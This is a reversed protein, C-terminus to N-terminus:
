GGQIYGKNASGCSVGPAPRVIYAWVFCGRDPLMYTIVESESHGMEVAEAIAEAETLFTGTRSCSSGLNDYEYWENHFPDPVMSPGLKLMPGFKTPHAFEVTKCALSVQKAYQMPPAINVKLSVNKQYVRQVIRLVQASVFTWSIHQVSQNSALLPGMVWRMPPCFVTKQREADKWQIRGLNTQVSRREGITWPLKGSNFVISLREAVRWRLKDIDYRKFREGVRWPIKGVNPHWSYREGVRWPIKGVNPHWSYREGVRWPIKGVNPHWSYREGVRWPIKGVNPQWSYREGVRWPINGPNLKLSFTLGKQAQALMAFGYEKSNLKKEFEAPVNSYSYNTEVEMVMPIASQLAFHLREAYTAPLATQGRTAKQKVYDNSHEGHSRFARRKSYTLDQAAELRYNTDFQYSIEMSDFKYLPKITQTVQAVLEIKGLTYAVPTNKDVNFARLAPRKIPLYERYVHTNDFLLIHDHEMVTATPSSVLESASRLSAFYQIHVNKAEEKVIKPQAQIQGSANFGPSGLYTVDINKFAYAPVISYDIEKGIPTYEPLMRFELGFANYEYGPVVLYNQEVPTSTIQAVEPTSARFDLGETSRFVSPETSPVDVSKVAIREDSARLEPKASKAQPYIDLSRSIAIVEAKAIRTPGSTEKPVFVTRAIAASPSLEKTIAVGTQEARTGAPIVNPKAVTVSKTFREATVVHRSESDKQYSLSLAERAEASKHYSVACVKSTDQDKAYKIGSYISRRYYEFLRVGDLSRTKVIWHAAYEGIQIILDHTKSYPSGPKFTVQIVDGNKVEGFNDQLAIGNVYLTGKAASIPVSFGPTLGAVTVPNSTVTVDVYADPVEVFKLPQIMLNPETRLHLLSCRGSCAVPVDVVRYYENPMHAVVKLTDGNRVAATTGVDVDNVVLSASYYSDPVRVFAARNRDLGSITIAETSVNSDKATNLLENFTLFDPIVDPPETRIPTNQYYSAIWINNYEDVAMGYAFNPTDVVNVINDDKLKYATADEFHSVWLATGNEAFELSYPVSGVAITAVVEHTVIDIKSLTNDYSNSVYIHTKNGTVGWPNNGVKVYHLTENVVDLIAVEDIGSLTVWVFKRDDVFVEFPKSESKLAFRRYETLQYDADSKVVVLEDTGYCAVFYLNEALPDPAKGPVPIPDEIYRNFAQIGLPRTGSGLNLSEAISYDSLDLVHISDSGSDTIIPRNLVTEALRDDYHISYPQNYGTLTQVIRRKEKDIRYVTNEYYNCVFVYNKPLFATPDSENVLMETLQGDTSRIISLKNSIPEASFVSDYPLNGYEASKVFEITPDLSTTIAFATQFTGVTVKCFKTAAYAAPAAMKIRVVDGHRVLTNQGADIYTDCTAPEDNSLNNGASATCKQITGETVSMPFTLDHHRCLIVRWESEFETNVEANCQPTFGFPEPELEAIDTAISFTSEVNGVTLTVSRTQTYANPAQMEIYLEDDAVVMTQTWVSVGNKFLQATPVEEISALTPVNIGRIKVVNSQCVKSFEVDVYDVLEFPEPNTDALIFRTPTNAYYDAVLLMNEYVFVGYPYAATDISTLVAGTSRNIRVVKREDFCAVWVGTTSDAAIGFVSVGLDVYLLVNGNAPNLKLVQGNNASAVWIANDISDYAIGQNNSGIAKTFAVTATATNIKTIHSSAHAVWLNGSGDLALEYPQAPVDIYTRSIEQMASSLRIKVIQNTRYLAVYLIGNAADALIGLPRGDLAFDSIVDNTQLDFAMLRDAGSCTAWVAYGSVGDYPLATIGYPNAATPLTTLVKRTVLDIKYLSHEFFNVTYTYQGSDTPSKNTESLLTSGQLTNSLLSIATLKNSTNPIYEGGDLYWRMDIVLSSAVEPAPIYAPDSKTTIRFFAFQDAITLKSYVTTSFTPASPLVVAILDGHVATTAMGVFSGNKKIVGNTVTVEVSPETTIVSITNSQKQTSIEANFVPELIFPIM